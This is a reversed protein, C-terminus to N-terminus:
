FAVTVSVENLLVLPVPRMNSDGIREKPKRRLCTLDWFYDWFGEYGSLVEEKKGRRFWKIHSMGDGLEVQYTAGVNLGHTHGFPSVWPVKDHANNMSFKPRVKMTHTVRYPVGPQLTVFHQENERDVTCSGESSYVSSQGLRAKPQNPHDVSESKVLELGNQFFVMSKPDLLTDHIFVTFPKNVQNPIIPLVATLTITFPAGSNHKHLITSSATATVNIHTPRTAEESADQTARLMSIM